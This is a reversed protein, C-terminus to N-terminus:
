DEADEMEAKVQEWPIYDSPDTNRHREYAEIAEGIEYFDELRNLVRTYEEYSLLVARPQGTAEDTLCLIPEREQNVQDILEVLTQVAESILVFRRQLVEILPPATAHTDEETATVLDHTRM